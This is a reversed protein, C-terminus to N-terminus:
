QFDGVYPGPEPYNQYNAAPPPMPPPPPRSGFLHGVGRGIRQGAAAVLPAGLIGAAPLGLGFGVGSGLAGLANSLRGENPDGGQGSAAQLVGYAPIGTMFARSAWPMVKHHWPGTKPIDPWFNERLNLTGGPRFAKGQILQRGTTIPSGILNRKVADLINTLSWPSTAAEKIGFHALAARAGQQHAKNLM